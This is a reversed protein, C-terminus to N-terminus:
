AEVGERQLWYRYPSMIVDKFYLSTDRQDIEKRSTVKCLNLIAKKAGEESDVLEGGLFEKNLFEWFKPEKCRMVAWECLPGLRERPQQVPQEDDGIEVIALMYRKGEMGVFQELDSRDDLRFTVRPGNRSSDTYGAFQVEGSYKPTLESM